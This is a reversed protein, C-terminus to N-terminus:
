KKKKVSNSINTLDIPSQVPVGWAAGIGRLTRSTAPEKRSIGYQDLGQSANAIQRWRYSPVWDTLGPAALGQVIPAGSAALAGPVVSEGLQRAAYFMKDLAGADNPYLNQGFAGQPDESQSLLHPLIGYDFLVQGIPNGMLQSKDITKVVADPLLEKYARGSPTFANLSYYPLAYGLNLYVPNDQFFPIKFMTPNNLYNYYQNKPKGTKPDISSDNIAEKELPSKAGGFDNLAYSVKNFFAPNTALTNATKLSAGYAFSVFPAGLLPMQRMMRIFGPMAAYNLYSEM